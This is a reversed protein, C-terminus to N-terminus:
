NVNINRLYNVSILQISEHFKSYYICTCIYKISKIRRGKHNKANGSILIDNLECSCHNYCDKRVEQIKEIHCFQSNRYFMYLIYLRKFQLLCHM